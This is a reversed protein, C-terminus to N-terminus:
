KGIAFMILLMALVTLLAQALFSHRPNRYLTKSGKLTGESVGVGNGVGIGQLGKERPKQGKTIPANSFDLSSFVRTM